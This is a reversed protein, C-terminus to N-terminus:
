PFQFKPTTHLLLYMDCSHFIRYHTKRIVVYPFIKNGFYRYQRYFTSGFNMRRYDQDLLKMNFPFNFQHFFSANLCFQKQFAFDSKRIHVVIYLVITHVNLWISLPQGSAAFYKRIKNNEISCFWHVKDVCNETDDVQM